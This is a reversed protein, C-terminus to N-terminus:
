LSLCAVPIPELLLLNTGGQMDEIELTEVSGDHSCRQAVRKVGTITYTRRRATAADRDGLMIHLRTLGEHDKELSIGVLPMGDLTQPSAHAEDFAVLRTLRWRNRRNFEKFYEAWQNHEIGLVM